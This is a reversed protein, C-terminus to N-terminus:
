MTRLCLLSALVNLRTKSGAYNVYNEFRLHQTCTFIELMTIPISNQMGIIDCM